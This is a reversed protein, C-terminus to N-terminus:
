LIKIHNVSTYILFIKSLNVKKKQTNLHSCLIYNCKYTVNRSNLQTSDVYIDYKPYCLECQRNLIPANLGKMLFYFNFFVCNFDVMFDAFILIFGGYFYTSGCRIWMFYMIWTILMSLTAFKLIRFYESFKLIGIKEKRSEVRFSFM